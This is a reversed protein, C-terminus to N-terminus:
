IPFLLPIISGESTNFCNRKDKFDAACNQCLYVVLDVVSLSVEPFFVIKATCLSLGQRAIRSLQLFFVPTFQRIDSM